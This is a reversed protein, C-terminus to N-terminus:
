RSPVWTGGIWQGGKKPTTPAQVQTTGITQPAASAASSPPIYTTGIYQGLSPVTTPPKPTTPASPAPISQPASPSVIFPQAAAVAADNGRKVAGGMYDQLGLNKRGAARLQRGGGAQTTAADFLSAGTTRTSPAASAVLYGYKQATLAGIGALSQSLGADAVAHGVRKQLKGSDVGAGAFDVAPGNVVSPAQRFATGVGAIARGMDGGPAMSGLAGAMTGLRSDRVQGEATDVASRAQQGEQALGQSLKGAQQAGQQENAHLYDALTPQSTSGRPFSHPRPM